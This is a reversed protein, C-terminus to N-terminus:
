GTLILAAILLLKYVSSLSVHNCRAIEFLANGDFPVAAYPVDHVELM